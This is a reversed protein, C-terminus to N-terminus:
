TSLEVRICEVARRLGEEVVATDPDRLILYGEGEYSSAKPQGPKPLKAEVVLDGLERQAAELGHVAGVRDGVGQGRLYAAGTAYVRKPAEFREFVSVEAWASYFDREHAWSMLSTFQAGPPRAAVESLAISGDPRRFWEMHSLGTFMGLVQLARTGAARIDDYEPGDIERPLLVNWQIWPSEMVELPTPRYCSISHFVPLGGITVADFSHEEGTLFEELLIPHEPSPPAVRFYSRLQEVTDVRFTAKAGAGDPPKAVLPLCEEAFSLAQEPSTALFHRACPLDGRRLLTKMRAKDRFNKATEYAMGRIRLRERVLALTEQLQELIGVLAHVEGGLQAGVQRVGAALQDADLADGVREYAVTKARLAEPFGAAEQQSILGFRVGELNAVAQAFRLTSELAFPAVFVVNPM